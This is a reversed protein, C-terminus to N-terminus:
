SQDASLWLCNGKSAKNVQQLRLQHCEVDIVDAYVVRLSSSLRVPNPTSNVTRVMEAVEFGLDGQGATLALYVDTLLNADLLAGHLRRHASDVQLRKCLADLSNKQGPYKERALALTDLVSCRQELPAFSTGLLALEANLFGVDFAANHIILEAGDVFALFEEAVQRFLPKDRLFEETLGTVEIAGFDMAREPNLYRQFERGTRRREVLEICGIEVVRHGRAPDLGTTETDLVVQRM